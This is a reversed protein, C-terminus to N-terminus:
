AKQPGDAGFMAEHMMLVMALQVPIMLLVGVLPLFECVMTAVLMLVVGIAHYGANAKVKDFSMQLAEVPAVGHLVVLPPGHCLAVALLIGPVYCLLMGGLVALQYLLTVIVVNKLNESFTAFASGFGLPGDDHWASWMARMLSANMGPGLVLTVFLIGPTYLLLGSALLGITLVNEDEMVAGPVAGVGMLAILVLIAAFLAVFYGLGALLYGFFRAKLEDILRTILAGPQPVAVDTM